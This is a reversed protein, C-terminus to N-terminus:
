KTPYLVFNYNIAKHLTPVLRLKVTLVYSSVFHSKKTIGISFIVWPSEQITIFCAKHLLKCDQIKDIVYNDETKSKMEM